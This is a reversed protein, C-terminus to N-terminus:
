LSCCRSDAARLRSARRPPTRPLPLEKKRTYNLHRLMRSFTMASLPQGSQGSEPHEQHWAQAMQELTSHQHRQAFRACASVDSLAPVPGRRYSTNPTVSGTQERLRLWDDITSRSIGLTKHAQMKSMGGELAALVRLRLDQSYPVGM